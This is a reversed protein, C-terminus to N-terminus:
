ADPDEESVLEMVRAEVDDREDEPWQERVKDILERIQRATEFVTVERGALRQLTAPSM